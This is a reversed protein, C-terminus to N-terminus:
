KNVVNGGLWLRGISQSNGDEEGNTINEVLEKNASEWLIEFSAKSPIEIDSYHKNVECLLLAWQFVVHPRALLTSAQILSTTNSPDGVLCTRDTM